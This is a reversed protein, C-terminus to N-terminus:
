QLKEGTLTIPDVLYIPKTTKKFERIEHGVGDSSGWGEMKLVILADCMDVFKKDLLKWLDADIPDLPSHNTIAHGHAIPSFCHIGLHMMEGTSSCVEGWARERGRHFHTYPSAVYHLHDINVMMEIAENLTM